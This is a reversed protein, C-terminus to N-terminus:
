AAGTFVYGVGRVTRILGRGGELKKRLHSIHVDLFRDYPTAQREFLAATIEDRSVVRGAARMLMELLDFEAATLDVLHDNLWTERTSPRLRINGISIEEAEARALSESRRLVARIRALLEDPDFPKPLYDDAGADLGRIRDQQQVRATLMIVPLDKRRRLRQLVEFGDLIPLMVDLIVLDFSGNLAATLGERGNYICELRHGEQAFFESMMGCLEVDDDVLLLSLQRQRDLVEMQKTEVALPLNFVEVANLDRM